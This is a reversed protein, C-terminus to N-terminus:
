YCMIFQPTTTITRQFTYASHLCQLSLELVKVVKVALMTCLVSFPYQAKESDNRYRFGPLFLHCLNARTWDRLWTRSKAVRHVAARRGGQGDGAGLTQEFEHGNLRHHWGVMENETTRKEEQRWDKGAVHDKNILWCKGDSLWLIPAEAKADTRGIFIWSQNGKPNTLDGQVGLSEWSDEGIGHKLPM